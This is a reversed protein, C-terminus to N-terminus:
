VWGRRTFKADSVLKDSNIPSCEIVQSVLANFEALYKQANSEAEKTNIESHILYAVYSYLAGFLNFPLIVEAKLNDPTLEKHKAKYIVNLVRVSSTYNVCLVNTDSTYVGLPDDPDNIPRKRDLDDWVELITLIDDEFPREDTDRIYFDYLDFISDTRKRTSHESTIPYDTRGEYLEILVSNEKLPLKTYLVLLAENISDVVKALNQEKVKGNECLHLNSLKGRALRDLVEQLTM